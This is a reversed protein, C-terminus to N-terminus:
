GTATSVTHTHTHKKKLVTLIWVLGEMLVFFVSEKHGHGLVFSSARSSPRTMKRHLVVTTPTFLSLSFTLGNPLMPRPLGMLTM